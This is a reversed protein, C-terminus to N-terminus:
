LLANWYLLLVFYLFLLVLSFLVVLLLPIQVGVQARLYRFLDTLTQFQYWTPATNVSLSAIEHSAMLIAM